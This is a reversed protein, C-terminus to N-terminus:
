QSRKEAEKVMSEAVIFADKGNITVSLTRVEGVSIKFKDLFKSMLCEGILPCKPWNIFDNSVFGQSPAYARYTSGTTRKFMVDFTEKM